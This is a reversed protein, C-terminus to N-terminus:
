ILGEELEPHIGEHFDHNRRQRTERVAKRLSRVEIDEDLRIWRTKDLEKLKSEFLEDGTGLLDDVHLCIVGNSVSSPSHLM